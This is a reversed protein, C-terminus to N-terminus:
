ENEFQEESYQQDRHRNSLPRSSKQSPLDHRSNIVKTRLPMPTFDLGPAIGPLSTELTEALAGFGSTRLSGFGRNRLSGTTNMKSSSTLSTSRQRLASSNSAGSNSRYASTLQSRNSAVSNSRYGTPQYVQPGSMDEDIAIPLCSQPLVTAEQVDLEHLNHREVPFWRSITIGGDKDIPLEVPSALLTSNTSLTSGTSVSARRYKRAHNQDISSTSGTSNSRSSWTPTMPTSNSNDSVSDPEEVRSSMLSHMKDIEVCNLTPTREPEELERYQPIILQGPLTHRRLSRERFHSSGPPTWALMEIAPVVEPLIEASYEIPIKNPDMELGYSLGDGYGRIVIPQHKRPSAIPAPAPKINKGIRRSGFTSFSFSSVSKFSSNRRPPTASANSPTKQIPTPPEKISAAHTHTFYDDGECDPQIPTPTEMQPHVGHVMPLSTDFGDMSVGAHINVSEVFSANLSKSGGLWPALRSVLCCLPYTPRDVDRVEKPSRIVSVLMQLTGYILIWRVKRADRISIKEEPQRTCDREFKKYEKVLPAYLVAEDASNTAAALADRAICYKETKAQRSELKLSRLARQSNSRHTQNLEEPLLPQPHPLPIYKHRTDFAQVNQLVCIGGSAPKQDVISDSSDMDVLFDYLSRFDFYMAKYLSKSFRSGPPPPWYGFKEVYHTHLFSRFRDLHARQGSSLGLHTPSFDEELFNSLARTVRGLHLDMELYARTILAKTVHSIKNFEPSFALIDNMGVSHVFADVWLEYQEAQEAFHLFALSYDPFHSFELYGIRGFYSMLDHHNNPDNPRVLEVRHRLGLLAESLCTGVLPKDMLFAFFNRTALHWNLASARHDPPPIYLDCLTTGSPRASGALLRAGTSQIQAPFTDFIFEFRANYIIDLPIRISPGRQSHGKAYLHVICNGREHFLEWDRRIGNWPSTTRTNGEWRKVKSGDVRSRLSEMSATKAKSELITPLGGTGLLTKSFNPVQPLRSSPPGRSSRPGARRELESVRKDEDDKGSDPRASSFSQQHSANRAEAKLNGSAGAQQTPLADGRQAM